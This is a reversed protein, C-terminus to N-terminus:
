LREGVRSYKMEIPKFNSQKHMVGSRRTGESNSYEVKYRFLIEKDVALICVVTDRKCFANNRTCVLLDGVRLDENTWELVRM